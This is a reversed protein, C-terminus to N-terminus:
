KRKEGDKKAMNCELQNLTIGEMKCDTLPCTFCSPSHKCVTTATRKQRRSMGKRAGM